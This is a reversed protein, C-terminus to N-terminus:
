LVRWVAEYRRVTFTRDEVVSLHVSSNAFFGKGEREARCLMFLM